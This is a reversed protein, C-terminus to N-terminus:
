LQIRGWWGVVGGAVICVQVVAAGVAGLEALTASRNTTLDQAREIKQAGNVHWRVIGAGTNPTTFWVGASDSGIGAPAFYRSQGSPTPWSIDVLQISTLAGALHRDALYQSLMEGSCFSVGNAENLKRLLLDDSYGMPALSAILSDFGGDEFRPIWDNEILIM